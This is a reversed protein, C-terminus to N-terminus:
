FNLGTGALNRLPTRLNPTKKTDDCDHGTVDRRGGTTDRLPQSSQAHIQSIRGQPTQTGRAPM